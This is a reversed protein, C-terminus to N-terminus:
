PALCEPDVVGTASATKEMIAAIMAAGYGITLLMDRKMEQGAIDVVIQQQAKLYELAQVQADSAATKANLQFKNNLDSIKKATDMRLYLDTAVGAIATIGFIKKSTCTSKAMGIGAGNAIAIVTYALHIVSGFDKDMSNKKALGDANTDVGAANAKSKAVRLQCDAPTENETPHDCAAANAQDTKVNTKQVCRNKTYDWEQATNATCAAIDAATPDAAYAYPAFSISTVILSSSLIIHILQYCYSKM